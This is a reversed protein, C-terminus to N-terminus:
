YTGWCCHAAMTADNTHDSKHAPRGTITEVAEAMQAKTAMFSRSWKEDLVLSCHQKLQIPTKKRVPLSRCAAWGLCVSTAAWIGGTSRAARPFIPLGEIGVAEITHREHMAELVPVIREAFRHPQDINGARLTVGEVVRNRETDFVSLGLNAYGPDIGLVLM